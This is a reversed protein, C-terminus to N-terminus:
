NEEKNYVRDPESQLPRMQEKGVKIGNVFSVTTASTVLAIGIYYHLMWSDAAVMKSGFFLFGSVLLVFHIVEYKIFSRSLNAKM